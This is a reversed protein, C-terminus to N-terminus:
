LSVNPFISSSLRIMMRNKFDFHLQPQSDQAEAHRLPHTWRGSRGAPGSGGQFGRKPNNGGGRSGGRTFGPLFPQRDAPAKFRPMRFSSLAPIPLGAKSGSDYSTSSDCRPRKAAQSPPAAPGRRFYSDVLSLAMRTYNATSGHVTGWSAFAALAEEPSTNSKGSLLDCAPIVTCNGSGGLRRSIFLQLRALDQM